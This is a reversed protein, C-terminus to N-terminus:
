IMTKASNYLLFPRIKAATLRKKGLCNEFEPSEPDYGKGASIKLSRHWNFEAAGRKQGADSTRTEGEPIM